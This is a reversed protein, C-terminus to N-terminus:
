DVIVLIFSFNINFADAPVRWLRRQMELLHTEVAYMGRRWCFKDRELRDYFPGEGWLDQRGRIDAAM